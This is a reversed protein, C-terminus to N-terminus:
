VCVCVRARVCIRRRMLLATCVLPAFTRSEPHATLGAGHVTASGVPRPPFHLGATNAYILEGGGYAEPANLAVQMTRESVDTHFNICQGIASCRRLMIATYPTPFEPARKLAALQAEGVLDELKRATLDVKLDDAEPGEGRQENRCARRYFRQLYHILARTKCLSLSVSVSLSLSLSTCLSLSLSLSFPFHPQKHIHLIDDACKLNDLYQVLATCASPALVPGIVSRFTAAHNASPVAALLTHLSGSTYTEAGGASLYRRGPSDCHLAFRGIDRRCSLNRESLRVIKMLCCGDVGIFQEVTSSVRSSEDITAICDEQDWDLDGLMSVATSDFPGRHAKFSIDQVCHQDRLIRLLEALPMQAPLPLEEIGELQFGGRGAGVLRVHGITLLSLSVSRFQLPAQMAVDFLLDLLAPAHEHRIAAHSALRPHLLSALVLRLRAADLRAEATARRAVSESSETFRRKLEKRQQQNAQHDRRQREEEAQRALLRRADETSKHPMM